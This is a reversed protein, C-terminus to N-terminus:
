KNVIIFVMYITLAISFLAAFVTSGLSFKFAYDLVKDEKEAQSSNKEKLKEVVDM